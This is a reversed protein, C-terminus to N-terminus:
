ATLVATAKTIISLYNKAKETWNIGAAETLISNLKMLQEVTMRSLNGIWYTKEEETLLRSSQVKTQLTAADM